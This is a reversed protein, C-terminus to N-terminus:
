DVVVDVVALGFPMGAVTSVSFTPGSREAKKTSQHRVFEYPDINFILIVDNESHIVDLSRLTIVHALQKVIDSVKAVVNQLRVNRDVRRVEKPVNSALPSAPSRATRSASSRIFRNKTDLSTCGTVREVHLEARSQVPRNTPVDNGRM